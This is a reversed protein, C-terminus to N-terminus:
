SRRTSPGANQPISFTFTSGEGKTSDVWIEGGHAEVMGKAIALGLGMGSHSRRLSEEVQFFPRFLNSQAEEPIGPGQDIVSILVQGDKRRAQVAVQAGQPSFKIANSLLKELVLSLHDADARIQACESPIDVALRLNKSQLQTRETDLAQRLLPELPIEEWVIESLGARLDTLSLMDDVVDRLRLAQELVIDLQDALEGEANYTLLEIYGLISVLPTRLEHSAIAIFESKLYDSEEVKKYATQIEEFLQANKIAVAAQAALVPLLELDSNSFPVESVDKGVAMMGLTQGQTVLPVSILVSIHDALPLMEIQAEEWLLPEPHELAPKFQKIADATIQEGLLVAPLGAVSEIVLSQSLDDFLMIAASDAQTEQEAMEVVKDLLEKESTITMLARTLQYFPILAKLRANEERLRRQELARGVAQRVDQPSFPKLIFDHFGLQLARIASEMTAYGTMAVGILEPTFDKIEQYAELGSMGPMRLDTLFLDFQQERAAEIAEPGNAVAVIEYGDAKTARVCVDRVFREDDAILIHENAM